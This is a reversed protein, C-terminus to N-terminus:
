LEIILDTGALCRGSREVPNLNPTYAPLRYIWLYAGLDRAVRKDATM